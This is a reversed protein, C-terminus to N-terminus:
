LDSSVSGVRVRGRRERFSAPTVEGDTVPGMSISAVSPGKGPEKQFAGTNALDPRTCAASAVPLSRSHWAFIRARASLVFTGPFTREPPGSNTAYHCTAATLPRAMKLASVGGGFAYYVRSSRVEFAPM